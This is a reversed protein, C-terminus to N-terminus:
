KLCGLTTKFILVLVLTFFNQSFLSRQYGLYLTRQRFNFHGRCWRWRNDFRLVLLFSSTSNGMLKTKYKKVEFSYKITLSLGKSTKTSNKKSERTFLFGKQSGFMCFCVQIIEFFKRMVSKGSGVFSCTHGRYVQFKQGWTWDSWHTAFAKWTCSRWQDGM